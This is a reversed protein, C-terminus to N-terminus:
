LYSKVPHIPLDDQSFLHMAQQKVIQKICILSAAQWRVPTRKLGYIM